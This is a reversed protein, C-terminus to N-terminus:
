RLRCPLSFVDPCRVGQRTALLDVGERIMRAFVPPLGQSLIDQAARETDYDVRRHEFQFFEEEAQALCYCARPDGDVPRGVTGTNVFWVGKIRKAFARHSHACVVVDAECTAAWGRLRVESTEEGLCEKISEPSGHCLLFRHGCVTM